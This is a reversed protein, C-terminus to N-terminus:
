IDANNLHTLNPNIFNYNFAPVSLSKKWSFTKCLKGRLEVFYFFQYNYSLTFENGILWRHHAAAFRAERGRRQGDRAEFRRLNRRSRNWVDNNTESERSRWPEDDGDLSGSIFRSSLNSNKFNGITQECKFASFCKASNSVQSINSLLWFGSVTPHLTVTCCTERLLIAGFIVYRTILIYHLLKSWAQLVPSWSYLSVVALTRQM